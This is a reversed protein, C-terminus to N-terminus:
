EEITEQNQPITKCPQEEVAVQGNHHGSSDSNAADYLVEIKNKM